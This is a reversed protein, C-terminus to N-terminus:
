SVILWIICSVICSVVLWISWCQVLLTVSGWRITVPWLVSTIITVALNWVERVRVSIGVVLTVGLASGM